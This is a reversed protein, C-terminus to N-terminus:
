ATWYWFHLTVIDGAAPAVPSAHTVVGIGTGGHMGFVTSTGTGTVMLDSVYRASGSVDRQIMEGIIHELGHFTSTAVPLTFTYNGSGATFGADCVFQAMGFCIGGHQSYRGTGTYNTPSTSSGAWVPTYTSPEGSWVDVAKAKDGASVM